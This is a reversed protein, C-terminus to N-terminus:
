KLYIMDDYPLFEYFTEDDIIISEDYEHGIRLEGYSEVYNKICDMIQTIRVKKDQDLKLEIEKGIREKIQRLEDVSLGSFDFDKM